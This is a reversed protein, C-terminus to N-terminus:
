WHVTIGRELTGPQSILYLSYLWKFNYCSSIANRLALTNTLVMSFVIFSDVPFSNLKIFNRPMKKERMKKKKKEVLLGNNSTDSQMQLMKRENWKDRDATWWLFREILRQVRTHSKKGSRDDAINAIWQRRFRFQTANAYPMKWNTSSISYLLNVYNSSNEQIWCCRVALATLSTIWWLFWWSNKLKLQM